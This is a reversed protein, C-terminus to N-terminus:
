DAQIWGQGVFFPKIKKAISKAARSADAEVTAGMTESATQVGASVATSVLLHGALAGAGMTEAMGPARASKADAKLDELMESNQYLQVEARVDTRGAGLGIAVRETRNGEDISLFQGIISLDAPDASPSGEARQAPLGMAQIEKVLHKSVAAAVKHGVEIEQETRSSSKMGEIAMASLGRDLKVEEPTVALDYVLVREPRPLPPGSYEQVVNVNTCGTILLVAMAGCRGILTTTKNTKM